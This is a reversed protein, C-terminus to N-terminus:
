MSFFISPPSALNLLVSVVFIFVLGLYFHFPLCLWSIKSLMSGDKKNSYSFLLFHSETFNSSSGQGISEELLEPFNIEHIFLCLFTNLGFWNCLELFISLLVVIIDVPLSLM